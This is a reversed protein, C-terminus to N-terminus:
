DCTAIAAVPHANYPTDAGDAAGGM